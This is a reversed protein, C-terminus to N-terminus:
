REAGPRTKLAQVSVVTPKAWLHGPHIGPWTGGWRGSIGQSVPSWGLGWGLKGTGMGKLRWGRCLWGPVCGPYSPTQEARIKWQQERSVEETSICILGASFPRKNPQPCSIQPPPQVPRLCQSTFLFFSPVCLWGSPYLSVAQLVLLGKLEDLTASLAKHNKWLHDLFASVFFGSWLVCASWFDLGLAIPLSSEKEKSRLM